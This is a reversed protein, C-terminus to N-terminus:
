LGVVLGIVAARAGAGLRTHQPQHDLGLEPKSYVYAGVAVVAVLVTPTLWERPLYRSVSAGVSSGLFAGSILPVLLVLQVRVRKLYVWSASLTGAFSSIKNTGLVYPTAVDSPVGIVLAPLQILGGGGVVADIWGAFGAAVVLMVLVPVTVPLWEAILSLESVRSLM